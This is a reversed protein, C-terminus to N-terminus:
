ATCRRPGCRSARPDMGARAPLLAPGARRGERQHSWGRPHPSCTPAITVTTAGIPGDGRTRPAAKRVLLEVQRWCAGLCSEGFCVFRGWPGGMTLVTTLGTTLLGSCPSSSPSRGGHGSGWEGCGGVVAVWAVSSGVCCWWWVRSWCGCGFILGAPVLFLAQGARLEARQPSWGGAPPSCTIPNVASAQRTPGDGRPRPAARPPNATPSSGPDMGACAPLLGVAGAPGPDALSWGRAPPSCVTLAGAPQGPAPGDGRPRPAPLPSARGRHRAPDM